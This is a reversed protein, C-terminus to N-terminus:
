GAVDASAAPTSTVDALDPVIGPADQETRATLRYGMAALGREIMPVFLEPTYSQGKALGARECAKWLAALTEPTKMDMVAASNKSSTHGPM